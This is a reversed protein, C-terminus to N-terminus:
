RLRSRPTGSRDAYVVLEGTEGERVPGGLETAQEFTPWLPCTCGETVAALCLMVVNIDDYPMGNHRLPRTVRGVAHEVNWPRIGQQPYAIMKGTIRGYDRIETM